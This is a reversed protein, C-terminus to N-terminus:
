PDDVSDVVVAICSAASLNSPFGGVAPGLQCNCPEGACLPVFVVRHAGASATSRWQEKNAEQVRVVVIGSM